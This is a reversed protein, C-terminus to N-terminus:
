LASPNKQVRGEISDEVVLLQIRHYGGYDVMVIQMGSEEAVKPVRGEVTDTGGLASVAARNSRYLLRDSAVLSLESKVVIIHKIRGKLRWSPVRLAMRSPETM